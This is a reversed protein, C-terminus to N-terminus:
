EGEGGYDVANIMGNMLCNVTLCLIIDTKIEELAGIMTLLSAESLEESMHRGGMGLPEGTDADLNVMLLTYSGDPVEDKEEGGIWEDSSHEMYKVFTEMQTKVKEVEIVSLIMKLIDPSFSSLRSIHSNKAYSMRGKEVVLRLIPYEEVSVKDEKLDRKLNQMKILTGAEDVMWRVNGDLCCELYTKGSGCPCKENAGLQKYLHKDPM